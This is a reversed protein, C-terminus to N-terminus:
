YTKPYNANSMGSNPSLPSKVSTRSDKSLSKLMPKPPGPQQTTHNDEISTSFSSKLNLKFTKKALESDAVTNGKPRSRDCFQGKKPEVDMMSVM